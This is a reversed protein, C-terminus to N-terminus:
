YMYHGGNISINTGTIYSSEEGALFAIGRAIEEPKGLRRAPIEAIIKKMIDPPVKTTMESEFYGPSVTNVTIGYRMVEQALSKTLGHMGAKAASYNVQGFQGKLANISSINIIRGYNNAIMDNMVNKTVNFVSDLNTRLVNRWQVVSMNKMQADATIGANNVLIDVKGIKEHIEGVIKRCSSFSRVDVNVTHLPKKEGKMKKLWESVHSQDGRYYAAVVIAGHSLFNECIARGLGGLGGTVLAVRNKM